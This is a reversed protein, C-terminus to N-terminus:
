KPGLMLRVADTRSQAGLKRYLQRLHLRVTIEAIGLINAIEKNSLGDLLLRGVQGERNTLGSLWDNARADTVHTSSTESLGSIHREGGIISRITAMLDKGEIGKSIVGAAGHRLASEAERRTIAGSLVIIPADPFRRCASAVATDGTLGPLRYDLLVVDFKATERDAADGLSSAEVVEITRDTSKLYYTLAERVLQHDDVFLIRL